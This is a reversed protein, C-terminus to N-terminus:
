DWFRITAVLAKALAVLKKMGIRVGQYIMGVPVMLKYLFPVSTHRLFALRVTMEGTGMKSGLASIGGASNPPRGLRCAILDPLVIRDARFLAVSTSYYDECHRLGDKFECVERDLLISPTYFPNFLIATLRSATLQWSGPLLALAKRVAAGVPRAGRVLGSVMLRGSTSPPGSQLETLAWDIWGPDYCDDSDLFAIYRGASADVGAKRAMGAGVNQDLRLVRVPISCPNTPANYSYRISGGDDVVVIEVRGPSSSLVSEVARHTSDPRDFTPIVVSVLAEM